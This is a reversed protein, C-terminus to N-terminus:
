AGPPRRKPARARVARPAPKKAVLLGHPIGKAFDEILRAMRRERTADQKASMVWFRCQQQRGQSLSQFFAWAAPNARLRKELAPAFRASAFEQRYNITKSEDRREFAARGPATMRGEAELEGVRTINIRSWHSKPQRPSFRQAYSRSDVNWRIGDIWGVCLAEDLAQKYTLGGKGSAQNYFGIILEDRTSGHRRLWTRLRSADKFFTPTDAM